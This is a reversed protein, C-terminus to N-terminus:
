ATHDPSSVAPSFAYADKLLECCREPSFDAIRRLANQRYVGRRVPDHWLKGLTETLAGAEFADGAGSIIEPMGGLRPVVAPIGLAMGQLLSTPFNEYCRSAMVQIAANRMFEFQARGTLYGTFEVNRPAISFYKEAGHGAIKFPIEPLERAASLLLDIGKEESLRGMYAVYGASGPAAKQATKLWSEDIFNPVIRCRDRSVGYSVLKELQFQTLCLFRDVHDAYWRCHQASWTRLAYGLTKFRSHLCNKKLCPLVSRKEACSECIGKGDFFLGNPCFLRFNHVTMVVPIGRRRAEPLICPSILPYLNHIHVVDPKEADLFAAFRQRSFPNYLGSFFGKAAGPLGHLEASSRRFQVIQIGHASLLGAHDRVVAEEGSFKGYDNHVIAIKM